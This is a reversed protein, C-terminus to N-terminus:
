KNKKSIKWLIEFTNRYTQALYEDHIWIFTLPDYWFAIVVKNGYVVTGTPFGMDKPLYRVESNKSKTRQKFESSVLMREKIGIEDITVRFQKLYTEVMQNYTKEEGLVLNEEKSELVDQMLTIIGAHGHLVQINPRKVEIKSSKTLEELEKELLKENEKYKKLIIKPEIVKFYTIGEISEKTILGKTELSNLISYIVSRNLNVKTILTSAKSNNLKLLNTYVDIEQNNLGLLKLSEYAM